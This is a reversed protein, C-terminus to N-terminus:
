PKPRLNKNGLLQRLNRQPYSSGHEGDALVQEEIRADNLLHEKEPPECHCWVDACAGSNQVHACFTSPYTYQPLLRM